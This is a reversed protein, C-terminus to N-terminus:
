TTLEVRLLQRGVFVYDGNTLEREGKVRVFTGNKSGGDSLSFRGNGGLEVKAHTASMFVDEPFNLDCEERGVQVTNERACFVIGTEGGRLVQTVRFPSPRRPSSYFYTQDSEPGSTDRPTADLRFVQEGCLFFDGPEISVPQRIRVYVGNMSGEDKVVLRDGKYLFNAHRAGVWSDEPFLIQGEKRGAVHESGQLLYSLGDIGTDGRILILRAKGPAQMPGFFRVQMEVVEVPVAGGCRGCFRHGSPVPTSCEKCVYNRAQEMLEEEPSNAIADYM